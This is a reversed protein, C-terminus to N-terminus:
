AGSCGNCDGSCSTCVSTCGVSCSDSCTVSCDGSCAITCSSACEVTCFNKCTGNCSGACSAACDEYRKILINNNAVIKKKNDINEKLLKDNDLLTKLDIIINTNTISTEVSLEENLKM